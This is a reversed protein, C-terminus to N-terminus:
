DECNSEIEVQTCTDSDPRGDGNDDGAGGSLSDDQAEGSLIDDGFDGSRTRVAAVEYPIM